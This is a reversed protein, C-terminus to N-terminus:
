GAQRVRARGLQRFFAEFAPQPRINGALQRSCTDVATLADLAGQRGLLDAQAELAARDDSFMLEDTSGGTTCLLVDRYWFLLLRLFREQREKVRAEIRADLTEKAFVEDEASEPEDIEDRVEAKLRDLLAVLGAAQSMSELARAPPGDRLIARVEEAWVEAPVETGHGAVLRQCRSRVTPLLMQASDTLLLLLTRPPPEELTKLFANAASANLRDAYRLVAAKWGGAFSTSAISRNLIRMQDIVIERSRSQPEIWHVDPHRGSAVQRCLPCTGCPREKEGCMVLQIMREAMAAAAGRPPGGVIYAHALRGAVWARRVDEFTQDLPADTM